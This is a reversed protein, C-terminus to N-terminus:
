QQCYLLHYALCLLKLPDSRHYMKLTLATRLHYVFYEGYDWFRVTWSSMKKIKHLNSQLLTYTKSSPNASDPDAQLKTIVDMMQSVRLVTAATRNQGNAMIVSSSSAIGTWKVEPYKDYGSAPSAALAECNSILQRSVLMDIAFAGKLNGAKQALDKM